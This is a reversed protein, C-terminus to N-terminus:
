CFCICIFHRGSTAHYMGYQPTPLELCDGTLNQVLREYTGQSLTASGRLLGSEPINRSPELVWVVGLADTAQMTSIRTQGPNSSDWVPLM